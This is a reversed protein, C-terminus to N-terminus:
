IEELYQVVDVATRRGAAAAEAVTGEDEPRSCTFAQLDVPQFGAEGAEALGSPGADLVLADDHDAVAPDGALRRTSNQRLRGERETM